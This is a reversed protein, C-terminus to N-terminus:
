RYEGDLNRYESMGGEDDIEPGPDYEPADYEDDDAYDDQEPEDMCSGDCHGYHGGVECYEPEAPASWGTVEGDENRYIEDRSTPFM